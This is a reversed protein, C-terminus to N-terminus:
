ATREPTEFVFDRLSSLWNFIGLFQSKPDKPSTTIDPTTQCKEDLIFLSPLVMVNNQGAVLCYQGCPPKEGVNM